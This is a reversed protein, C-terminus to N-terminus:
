AEDSGEVVELLHKIKWVMGRIEPTDERLVTHGIKRLGLGRIIRKQKEPKGIGSKIQKIVIKKM